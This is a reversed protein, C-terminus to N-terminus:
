FAGRIKGLLGMGAYTLPDALFETAFGAAAADDEHMGQDLAWQKMLAGNDALDNQAVQVGSNFAQSPSEGTALGYAGRGIGHIAQGPMQAADMAEGLQEGIHQGVRTNALWSGAKLYPALANAYTAPDTVRDLYSPEPEYESWDPFGRAAPTTPESQAPWERWGMSPSEEANVAGTGAAAALALAMANNKPAEPTPSFEKKKPKAHDPRYGAARDARGSMWQRVQREAAESLTGEDLLAQGMAQVQDKYYDGSSSGDITKAYDGMEKYNTFVKDHMVKEVAYLPNRGSQAAALKNIQAVAQAANRVVGGVAAESDDSAFLGGLGAGAAIPGLLGAGKAIAM